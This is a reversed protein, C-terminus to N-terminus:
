SSAERAEREKRAKKEARTEFVKDTVEGVPEDKDFIVKAGKKMDSFQGNKAAWYLAFLASGGLVLMSGFILIYAFNM